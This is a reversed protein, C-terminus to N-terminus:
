LKNKSQKPLHSKDWLFLMAMIYWDRIILMLITFVLLLIMNYIFGIAVQTSEQKEPISKNEM